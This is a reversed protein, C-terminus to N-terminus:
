GLCSDVLRDFAEGARLPDAAPLGTVAAADSMAAVAGAESLGSTNFLIKGADNTTIILNTGSFYGEIEAYFGGSLNETPNYAVAPYTEGSANDARFMVGWDSQLRIPKTINLSASTTKYAGGVAGM